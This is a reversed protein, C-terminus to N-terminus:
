SRAELRAFLLHEDIVRKKKIFLPRSIHGRSAKGEHDGQRLGQLILFVLFWAVM